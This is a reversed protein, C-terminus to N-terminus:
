RVKEVLVSGQATGEPLGPVLTVARVAHDGRAVAHSVTREITAYEVPGATCLAFIREPGTAGDFVAGGPLVAAHAVPAGGEGTAPYLRSVEGAADVSVVWLRCAQTPAVKFRIASEPPIAAGDAVPLSGEATGVFVALELAGGELTPEAPQSAVPEPADSVRAVLLVAAAAAAFAFPLSRWDRAHQERAADEIRGVTAPYVYQLFRRAERDM